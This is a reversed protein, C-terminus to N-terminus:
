VSSRVSSAKVTSSVILDNKLEQSVPDCDCHKEGITQGSEGDQANNGLDLCFGHKGMEHYAVDRNVM